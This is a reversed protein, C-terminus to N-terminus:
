MSLQYPSQESGDGSDIKISSVLYLSPRVFDFDDSGSFVFGSGHLGFAYDSYNSRPSLLWQYTNSNTNYIWGQTPTGGKSSSCNTGDTYCTNDVKIMNPYNGYECIIKKAGNNIADLIYNHGDDKIGKLAIFTDGIRVKRSDSQLM